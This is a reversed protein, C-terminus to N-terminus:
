PFVTVTRDVQALLEDDDYLAVDQSRRGVNTPNVQFQLYAIVFDGAPVRGFDLALRGERSAEGVPAPEITNIHMGELWGRDLVLTAHEIQEEARITFRSQYFVGGRVRMPAVVELSAGAGTATSTREEQGFVNLLALAALAVILSILIRRSLLELGGDADVHRDRKLGAPLTAM